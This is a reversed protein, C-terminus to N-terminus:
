LNFLQTLDRQGNVIRLIQVADGIVVYFIIYDDIVFGRLGPIWEEYSKGMNPFSAVLKCKQRIRDFLQSAAKTSRQELYACIEELDENADESFGYTGM